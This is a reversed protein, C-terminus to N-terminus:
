AAVNEGKLITTLKEAGAVVLAKNIQKKAAQRCSSSRNHYPDGGCLGVIYRTTSSLRGPKKSVVRDIFLSDIQLRKVTRFGEETAETVDPLTDLFSNVVRRFGNASWAGAKRDRDPVDPLEIDKDDKVIEVIENSTLQEGAKGAEFVALMWKKMWVLDFASTTFNPIGTSHWVRTVSEYLSSIEDEKKQTLIQLIQSKQDESLPTEIKNVILLADDESAKLAAFLETFGNMTEIIGQLREHITILQETM